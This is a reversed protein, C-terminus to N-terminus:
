NTYLMPMVISTVEEGAFVIPKYNDNVVYVSLSYGGHVLKFEKESMDFISLIFYTNVNFKYDPFITLSDLILSSVAFPGKVWSYEGIKQYAQNSNWNILFDVTPYTRNCQAPVLCCSKKDVIIKYVGESLDYDVPMFRAQRGDTTFIFKQGNNQTLLAFRFCESSEVNKSKTLENIYKLQAMKKKDTVEIM